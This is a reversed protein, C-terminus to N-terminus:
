PHGTDTEVVEMRQQGSRDVRPRRLQLPNRCHPKVRDDNRRWEGWAPGTVEKEGGIVVPQVGPEACLVRNGCERSERSFTPIPPKPRHEIHDDIPNGSVWGDAITKGAPVPDVRGILKGIWSPWWV